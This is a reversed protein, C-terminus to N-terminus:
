GPRTPPSQADRSYDTEVLAVSHALVSAFLSCPREPLALPQSGTVWWQGPGHCRSRQCVPGAWRTSKSRHTAQEKAGGSAPDGLHKLCCSRPPQKSCCARKVKQKTAEGRVLKLLFAPPEVGNSEAWELRQAPSLCCCGTWCDAASQCGCAHGDCPFQGRASVPPAVTFGVTGALLGLIVIVTLGTQSIRRIIRVASASM